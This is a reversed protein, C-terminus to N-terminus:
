HRGIWHISVCNALKPFILENCQNRETSFHFSEDRENEDEKLFVKEILKELFISKTKRWINQTRNHKIKLKMKLLVIGGTWVSLGIPFFTGFGCNQTENRRFPVLHKSCALSQKNSQNTDINLNQKWSLKLKCKRWWIPFLKKHLNIIKEGIQPKMRHFSLKLARFRWSRWSHKMNRQIRVQNRFSRTKEEFHNDVWRKKRFTVIFSIKPNIGQM